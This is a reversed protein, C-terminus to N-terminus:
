KGEIAKKYQEAATDPSGVKLRLSFFSHLHTENTGNKGFVAPWQSQFHESIVFLVKLELLLEGQGVKRAL